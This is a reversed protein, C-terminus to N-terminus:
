KRVQEFVFVGKKNAVIIDLLKDGNIDTVAFQTGIGSDTDIQHPIFQTMGDSAKKAEFWFLVAPNNPDADGRPGHAWWRKGTVLDKAGDGNIDVCHLAHTQSIFRPFLDRRQFTPDSAPNGPSNAPSGQRHWWIGYGHASSSIVDAKGDGDVDYSFMDACPDGLTAPHFKWPKGDDKAPQEWWGGTCMIDLKGDGNLDGAGLGHSFRFTGPVPKARLKLTYNVDGEPLPFVGPMSREPISPESIPHMGWPQNPDRGPAFWAMQGENDRDPPQFGMVLVRQGTGFLDTYIPTENCASYWIVHEKWHTDQGKPNEYWHCHAGPFGIVIVDLWGDNNFDDAWCAFSQSYGASGDGFSGPKRIEHMKWDPAEYWVDGALVDLKGDKNVDAVAVGESRFTKDLTTKKWTISPKEEAAPATSYALTLVLLNFIAFQRPM